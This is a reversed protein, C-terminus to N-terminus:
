KLDLNKVDVSIKESDSKLPRDVLTFKASSFSGQLYSIMNENSNDLKIVLVKKLDCVVELQQEEAEFVGACQYKESSGKFQIDIDAVLDGMVPENKKAERINVMGQVSGNTQDMILLRGLFDKKEFLAAHSIAASLVLTISLLINKM